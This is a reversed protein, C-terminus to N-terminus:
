LFFGISGAAADRVALRRGVMPHVSLCVAPAPYVQGCQSRQPFPKPADWVVRTVAHSCGRVQSPSPDGHLCRGWPLRAWGM